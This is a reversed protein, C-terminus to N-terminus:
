TALIEDNPVKITAVRVVEGSGLGINLVVINGLLVGTVDERQVVLSVVVSDEGDEGVSEVDERLFSVLEDRHCITEAALVWVLGNSLRLCVVRCPSRLVTLGRRPEESIPTINISTSVGRVSRYM